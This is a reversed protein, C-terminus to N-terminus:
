ISRLDTVSIGVNEMAWDKTAIQAITMTNTGDSLNGSLYLHQWMNSGSGLNRGPGTPIIDVNAEIQTNAFRAALTNNAMIEIKHSSNKSIMSNNGFDVYHSLFITKWRKSSNGLTWYADTNPELVPRRITLGSQGDQALQIGNAQSLSRIYWNGQNTQDVNYFRIVGQNDTTTNGIAVEGTTYVGNWKYSSSGLTQSNRPMIASNSLKLMLNSAKYIALENYTVDSTITWDSGTAVFKISNIYATNWRMTTSGLDKSDSAGPHFSTYAYIANGIALRQSNNQTIVIYDQLATEAIKNKSSLFIGSTFTKEGGITQNNTLDVYGSLAESVYDQTALLKAVYSTQGSETIKNIVYLNDVTSGNVRYLLKLDVERLNSPLADVVKINELTEPIGILDYYNGTVAVQAFPYPSESMIDDMQVPNRDVMIPIETSGASQGGVTVELIPKHLGDFISMQEDIDFYVIHREADCGLVDKYIFTRDKKGWRIKITANTPITYLLGNKYLEVAIIPLSRDYQVVHIQKYSVQKGSFDAKTEHVIRQPEPVWGVNISM